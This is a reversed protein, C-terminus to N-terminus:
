DFYKLYWDVFYKLGLELSTNPEFGTLEQIPKTDAFTINVDGPQMPLNEIIASKGILKEIIAVFTKVEVPHQNGINLLRHPATHNLTNPAKDLLRVISEVIDSVYTFDRKLNGNNYLQIPLNNIINRTFTFYAMDPRGWPGYVTFFRLGTSPMSYLHSYTYAMLENSKKTAAYLSIPEDTKHDTTFPIDKNNGYVSSSSAYILHKLPFTRCAELLNFFGIVNANIYDRPNTISYRVGAQAALNIVVDFQEKGFLAMLNGADSLDMEVFRFHPKGHILKNYFIDQKHIGLQGLRNYKLSTDYYSNINDLGVVDFGLSVLKQALHMGIFGATGTILIKM